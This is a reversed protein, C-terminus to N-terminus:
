PVSVWDRYAGDPGPVAQRRVRLSGDGGVVAIASRGTDDVGIAPQNTVAGALNAWDTAFPRNAASQGLEGIDYTRTRAALVIRGEAVAAAVPGVGPEGSLEVPAAWGGEPLQWTTSIAATAAARFVLQLRGDANPIVALPGTTRYALVDTSITLPGAGPPQTWRLIATGTSAYVEVRGVPDLAASVSEVVDTGGISEWGTWTGIDSATRMSVGGIFNKVFVYVRGTGDVIAEPSGIERPHILNHNGLDVWPLFSDVNPASQMTTILHYDSLRIAFIRLRGTGDRVVALPPAVAAGQVLEATQWRDGSLTWLRVLGSVVGAFTLRGDAQNVARLGPGLYRQYMRDTRAYGVDALGSRPDHQSYTGLISRKDDGTAPDLNAPLDAAGYGRYALWTVAIGPRDATYSLLAREAFLAAHVHDSHDARLRHDPHSDLIRAVSVNANAFLATLVATLDAATYAQVNVLTSGVPVVTLVTSSAGQWLRELANPRGPLADKGDPLNLFVLSLEPHGILIDREIQKGAVLQTSRSWDDNAHAMAAYAARLGDQRVGAYQERTVEGVGNYEGATLVITASRLGQRIFQDLDPAMFYLDDDPHAVVQVQSAIRSPDAPADIALPSRALSVPTIPASCGAVLTVAVLPALGRLGLRM